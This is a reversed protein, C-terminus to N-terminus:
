KINSIFFYRDYYIINKYIIVIFIMSIDKIMEGTRKGQFTEIYIDATYEKYEEFGGRYLLCGIIIAVDEKLKENRKEDNDDDDNNNNDLNEKIGDIITKLKEIFKLDKVIKEISSLSKKKDLTLEGKFIKQIYKVIIRRLILCMEYKLEDPLKVLIALFNAECAIEFVNVNDNVNITLIDLIDLFSRYTQSSEKTNEIYITSFKPLFLTLIKNRFSNFEDSNLEPYDDSVLFIHQYYLIYLTFVM